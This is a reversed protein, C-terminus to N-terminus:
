LGCRRFAKRILLSLHAQWSGQLLGEFRFGSDAGKLDFSPPTIHSANVHSANVLVAAVMVALSM